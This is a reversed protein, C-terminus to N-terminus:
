VDEPVEDPLKYRKRRGGEQEDECFYQLAERVRIENHKSDEIDMSNCVHNVSTSERMRCHNKLFRHVLVGARDYTLKDDEEYFQSM